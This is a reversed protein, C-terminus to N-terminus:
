FKRMSANRIQERITESASLAPLHSDKPYIDKRNWRKRSSLGQSECFERRRLAPSVLNSIRDRM